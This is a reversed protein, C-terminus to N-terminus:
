HRHYLEENKRLDENEAIVHKLRLEMDNMKAGFESVIKKSQNVYTDYGKLLPKIIGLASPGKYGLLVQEVEIAISSRSESPHKEQYYKLIMAFRLVVTKYHFSINSIPCKHKM